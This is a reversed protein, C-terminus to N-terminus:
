NFRKRIKYARKRAKDLLEQLHKVNNELVAIRKENIQIRHKLRINELRHRRAVIKLDNYKKTEERNVEQEEKFSKKLSIIEDVLQEHSKFCYDVQREYNSEESFLKLFFSSM